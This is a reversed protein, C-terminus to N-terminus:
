YIGLLGRLAKAVIKKKKKKIQSRWEAKLTKTGRGPILGSGWCHFRRVRVVPSGPFEGDAMIRKYIVKSCWTHSIKNM